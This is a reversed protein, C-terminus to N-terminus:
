AKVLKVFEPPNIFSAGQENVYASQFLLERMQNSTLDPRLEWGLALIGACYPISWSLGGQGCYQYSCDGKDYEEAVTRPSAPVLLRDSHRTGEMGPFGSRCKAANEPDTADYYCAGVFGHHQTCDLVMLGKAEARACADDWSAQNKEFASEPGSPAASVSVVRIKQGAPLKDNQDIIWDLAKSQFAADKTWSPAAVYYLTAGPATGCEAGVLLSAVAPGHMSSESKCGVDHYAAIKGAFEPHDQYLPQDIIAVNVGQGTIGQRHLGRVGLGPNMAANLLDNPLIGQPMASRAPWVTKMNFNLTAVLDPQGALNLRNMDKWRVDDYANVSDIPRVTQFSEDRKSVNASNAAAPRTVQEARSAAGSTKKMVYYSPQQGRETVDGSLWPLFLYTAGGLTKIFYQARTRGNPHTVWGDAWTWGLSTSGGVEASFEKLFLDDRWSKQGPKFDEVKRVFDVSEWAGALSQDEVAAPAKAPTNAPTSSGTGSFRSMIPLAAVIVVVVIVAILRKDM